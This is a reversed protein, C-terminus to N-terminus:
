QRDRLEQDQRNAADAITRISRVIVFFVMYVLTLVFWLWRFSGADDIHKGSLLFCWGYCFVLLILYMVVSQSFYKLLNTVGLGVISNLIIFFLLMATAVIWSSTNAEFIAESHPLMADVLTLVIVMLAVIGAQLYPRRLRKLRNTHNTM